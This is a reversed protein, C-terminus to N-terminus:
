VRICGWLALGNRRDMGIWVLGEWNKWDGISRLDFQHLMNLIMLIWAILVESCPMVHVSNQWVWLKPRRGLCLFEFHICLIMWYWLRSQCSGESISMTGSGFPGFFALDGLFVHKLSAIWWSEQNTKKGSRGRRDLSHVGWSQSFSELANPVFVTPYQQRNVHTLCPLVEASFVDQSWSRVEYCLRRTRRLEWSRPPHLIKSGQLDYKNNHVLVLIM